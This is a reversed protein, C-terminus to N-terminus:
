NNMKLLSIRAQLLRVIGTIYHVLLTIMILQVASVHDESWCVVTKALTTDM